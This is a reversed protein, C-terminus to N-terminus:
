LYGEVKKAEKRYRCYDCDDSGKPIEDSMLCEHIKKIVPEIWTDDGDYPIVSISFELKGDFADKDKLGNCYVFYGRSSIKYGELDETHRALWQYIEMQRKYGIKWEDDLNIEKDTSTSKYDVIILEKTNNDQWIDDVAGFIIMNTAKDLVQLGTFNHRWIDMKEHMFPIADIGYVDMLPHSNGDLRHIDFEKKLLADVASNLTYPPVDPRGIGLKRDLYFCRPCDM